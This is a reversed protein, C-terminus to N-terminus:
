KPAAKAFFDEGKSVSAAKPSTDSLLHRWKGLRQIKFVTGKKKEIEVTGIATYDVGYKGALEAPAVVRYLVANAEGGPTAPSLLGLVEVEANIPRFDSGCGSVTLALALMILTKM